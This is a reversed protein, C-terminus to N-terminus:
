ARKTKAPGLHRLRAQMAKGTEKKAARIMAAVPERYEPDARFGFLASIAWARVIVRRDSFCESLFPYAAERMAGPCNTTSFLQCLNLRSLWHTMEDAAAAIQILQREGLKGERALRRLLWVARWALDADLQRMAFLAESALVDKEPWARYIHELARVDM